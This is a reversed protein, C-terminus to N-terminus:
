RIVCKSVINLADLRLFVYFGFLMTLIVLSTLIKILNNQERLQKNREMQLEESYTLKYMKGDDDKWFLDKKDNKASM